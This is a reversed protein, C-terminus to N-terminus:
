ICNILSENSLISQRKMEEIFDQLEEIKAKMPELFVEKNKERVDDFDIEGSFLEFFHDLHMQLTVIEGKLEQKELEIKAFEIERRAKEEQMLRMQEVLFAAAERQSKEGNQVIRLCKLHFESYKTHHEDLMREMKDNMQEIHGRLVKIKEDKEFNEELVLNWKRICEGSAAEYEEIIQRAVMLDKGSQDLLLEQQENIAVLHENTKMKVEQLQLIADSLETDKEALAIRMKDNERQLKYIIPM